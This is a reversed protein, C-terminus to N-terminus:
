KGRPATKEAPALRVDDFWVTGRGRTQLVVYLHNGAPLPPEAVFEHALVRWQRSGRTWPSVKPYFRGDVVWEAYVRAEVPGGDTRFWVSLRYRRNPEVPIGTQVLLPRTDLDPSDFRVCFRGSHPEQADSFVTFPCRARWILPLGDRGSRFEFSPNVILNGPEKMQDLTVEPQPNRLEASYDPREAHFDPATTALIVGYGPLTFRASGNTVPVSRNEYLIRLSSVAPPLGRVAVRAQTKRTNLLVLFRHAGLARFTYEVGSESTPPDLEIREPAQDALLVPTMTHLEHAITKVDAWAQSPKPTWPTGWYLIGSAGHLVADWAMFRQQALTPYVGKRHQLRGWAFGQLVMFIPKRDGVAARNKDAEDGIVSLTKNPLDSQTQPEPVPYIDCGTIDAALNFRALTPIRNRPAHNMWVPHDPDLRRVIRYGDLLEDPNRKGWAPEDVSEWVLLAPHDRLATVLRRLRAAKDSDPDRIEILHGLAIWAMMGAAHLRDLAPRLVSPPAVTLRVTNFGAQKLEELAVDTLPTEYIGVPFFRRGHVVLRLDRDAYVALNHMPGSRLRELSVRREGITRDGRLLELVIEYPGPPVNNLPLVLEVPSREVTVQRRAAVSGPTRIAADLRLPGAGGTRGLDVPVRVAVDDRYYSPFVLPDGLAGSQASKESEMAIAAGTCVAIAAMVAFCRGACRRARPTFAGRATGNTIRCAPQTM